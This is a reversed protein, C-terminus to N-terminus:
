DELAQVRKELDAIKDLLNDILNGISGVDYGNIKTDEPLSASTTVNLSEANVYGRTESQNDVDSGKLYLKGVIVPNDPSHDEFGVIVIDNAKYSETACPEHALVATKIAPESDGATELFPIRVLYRIGNGGSTTKSMIVGKTLM